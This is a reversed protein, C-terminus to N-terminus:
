QPQLAEEPKGYQGSIPQLETFVYALMLLEKVKDTNDM